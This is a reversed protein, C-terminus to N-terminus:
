GGGPFAVVNRPEDFSWDRPMVAIDVCKVRAHTLEGFIMRGLRCICPACIRLFIKRGRTGEADVAYTVDEGVYDRRYILAYGNGRCHPCPGPHGGTVGVVSTEQRKLQDVLELLRPLHDQKFQPPNERIEKIAKELRKPAVRRFGFADAWTDVLDEWDDSEFKPWAISDFYQTHKLLLREIKARYKEDDGGGGDSMTTRRMM